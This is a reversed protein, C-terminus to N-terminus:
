SFSLYQRSFDDFLETREQQNEEVLMLAVIRLKM